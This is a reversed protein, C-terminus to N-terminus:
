FVISYYEDIQNDSSFLFESNQNMVSGQMEEKIGGSFRNLTLYIKDMSISNIDAYRGEYTASLRFDYERCSELQLDLFSSVPNGDITLGIEPFQIIEIYNTFEPNNLILDVILNRRAVSIVDGCPDLLKPDLMNILTKCAPPYYPDKKNNLVAKVIFDGTVANEPISIKIKSRTWELIECQVLDTEHCSFDRQLWVGWTAWSKLQDEYSLDEYIALYDEETLFTHFLEDRPPYLEVIGDYDTCVINPYVSAIESTGDANLVESIRFNYLKM